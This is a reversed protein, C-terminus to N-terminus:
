RPCYMGKSNQRCTLPKEWRGVATCTDIQLGDIGRM